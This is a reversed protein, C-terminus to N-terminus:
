ELPGGIDATAPPVPPSRSKLPAPADADRSPHTKITDSGDLDAINRALKLIRHFARATGVRTRIASSPEGLRGALLKDYDVRPVDIHIDIRDLLPDSIRKQYRVVTGTSCTYEKENDVFWGCPCRNM